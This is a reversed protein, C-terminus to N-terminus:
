DHKVFLRIMLYMVANDKIKYDHLTKSDDELPKKLYVLRQYDINIKETKQIMSKVDYITNNQDVELEIPKSFLKVTIKM